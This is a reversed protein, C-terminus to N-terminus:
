KVQQAGPGARSSSHAGPPPRFHGEALPDSIYIVTKWEAFVSTALRRRRWGVDLRGVDVDLMPGM